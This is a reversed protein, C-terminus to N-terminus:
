SSAGAALLVNHPSFTLLNILASKTPFAGLLEPSSHQTTETQQVPDTKKNVDWLRICCDAGGSALIRSTEDFALTYVTDSHGRLKLWEDKKKITAISKRKKCFLESTSSGKTKVKAKVKKQICM